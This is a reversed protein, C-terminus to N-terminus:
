LCRNKLFYSEWKNEIKDVFDLQKPLVMRKKVLIFQIFVVYVGSLTLVVLSQIISPTLYLSRIIGLFVIMPLTLIFSFFLRKVPLKVPLLKVMTWRGVLFVALSGASLSIGAGLYPDWSSLSFLGCMMVILGIINPLIYGKTNHQIMGVMSYATYFILALQSIVGWIISNKAIHYFKEGVIIKAIFPGGCIIYISMVLAAPMLYYAYNNWAATKKSIDGTTIEKFFIPDYFQNFLSYFRDVLNMGLGFGVTFLGVVELSSTKELVFRYASQQFWLILSAVSIPWGFNFVLLLSKPKEISTGNERARFAQPPKLLKLFVIGSFFLILLHSLIQGLLWNEASMSIFMVFLLSLCIGLWTTLNSFFVYWIRKKFMNLWGMFGNNIGTTFVLGMVLMIIWYTEINIGIGITHKMIILVISGVVSVVSLYLFLYSINKRVMGRLDWELLNRQTYASAPGTLFNFWLIIAMVIAMRGIEHPVLVSTVIRTSLMGTIFQFATGILLILIDKKNKSLL